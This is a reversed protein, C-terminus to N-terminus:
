YVVSGPDSLMFPRAPTAVPPNVLPVPVMAADPPIPGGGSASVVTVVFAQTDEQGANDVVRVTVSHEGIEATTPVWQIVGSVGDIDMGVPATTLSYSLADGVDQDSANVDYSYPTNELAFMLPISVITPPQNTTRTVNVEISSSNGAIDVVQATITNIGEVLSVAQSFAGSGDPTVTAGNITFGSVPNIDSVTGAVVLLADTVVAGDQPATMQVVPATKDINLTVSTTASNGAVDSATGSV